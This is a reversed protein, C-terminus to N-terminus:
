IDNQRESDGFPPCTTVYYLRLVHLDEYPITENMAQYVPSLHDGGLSEFAQLTKQLAAGTVSTEALLGDRRIPHGQRYCAYL